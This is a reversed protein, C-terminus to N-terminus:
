LQGPCSRLCQQPPLRLSHCNTGPASLSSLLTTNQRELRPPTIAHKYGLPSSTHPRCAPGPAPPHVGPHRAPGPPRPASRLTGHLGTASARGRPEGCLHSASDPGTLLMDCVGGGEKEAAGPKKEDKIITKLKGQQSVLPSCLSQCGRRAQGPGGCCVSCDTCAGSGPGGAAAAWTRARQAEQAPRQEALGSSPTQTEVGRVRWKRPM